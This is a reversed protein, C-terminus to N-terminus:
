QQRPKFSPVGWTCDNEIGLNSGGMKIRFFGEEGWYTGWSNRGIWYDEGQATVGWGLVSIEHNLNNGNQTYVGGTYKEFQNTADIGCAIPGRAYIEAKMNNVGSVPGYQTVWYLTFNTQKSCTGPTFTSSTNGPVCNECINLYTDRGHPDNKAQYAQCTEDPIGNKEIYRMVGPANGGNCTGGGDENVLVQPALNIEPWINEGSTARIISLRDSLASTTGFAWCSGCYQPIHQNRALTAYNTGNMDNWQFKNPLADVDIYTHPLPDTIVPKVTNWDNMPPREPKRSYKRDKFENMIEKMIPRKDFKPANNGTKNVWVQADAPTAWSCGVEIGLNNTGRVIRFYGEYGWWTGWSNRGIWYPTGAASDTGYGVISIAHDQSIDGTTDNFVGFGEYEEFAETVAMGCVIPGDQLASILDSEGKSAGHESVYWVQHPLQAVCGSGPSCNRCRAQGDCKRGTDHGVAEYPACTESTIGDTRMYEYANDPDGGHCGDDKMDCDLLVQPSVDWEPYSNKNMIMVRDNFASTSAMAWCAGCYNPIHQNRSWTAYRQGDKYRWDLSTPVASLDSYKNEPRNAEDLIFEIPTEARKLCAPKKAIAAVVLLSALVAKM